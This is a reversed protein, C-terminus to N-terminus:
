PLGHAGPPATEFQTSDKGRAGALDHTPLLPGDAREGMQHVRTLGSKLNIYETTEPVTAGELIVARQAEMWQEVTLNDKVERPLHEYAIDVRWSSPPKTEGHSEDPKSERPARLVILQDRPKPARGLMLWSQGDRTRIGYDLGQVWYVDNVMVKATEVEIGLPFQMRSGDCLYSLDLPAMLDTDTAADAM